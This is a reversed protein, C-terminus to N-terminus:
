RIFEFTHFEKIALILTDLANIYLKICACVHWHDLTTVNLLSRVEHFTIIDHPTCSLGGTIVKDRMPQLKYRLKGDRYLQVSGIYLSFLSISKSFM